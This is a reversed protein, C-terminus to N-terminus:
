KKEEILTPDVDASPLTTEGLTQLEWVVGYNTSLEELMLGAASERFRGAVADANEGIAVVKYPAILPRYDVLIALGASRIASNSTLRRDNIAIASAGSQWLGNVVIQLDRDQVQALGSNGATDAGNDLLVEVGDGAAISYGAASRLRDLRQAALQGLSTGDLVAQQAIELDLTATGVRSELAAVRDKAAEIRDSLAGRTTSSEAAIQRTQGAGIVAIFSIGLIALAALIRDIPKTRRTQEDRHYDSILADNLLADLSAERSV